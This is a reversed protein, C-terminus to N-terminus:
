RLIFLFPAMCRNVFASLHTIVESPPYEADSDDTNIMIRRASTEAFEVPNSGAQRGISRQWREGM